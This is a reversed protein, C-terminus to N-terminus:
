VRKQSASHCAQSKSLARPEQNLTRTSTRSGYHNSNLILFLLPPRLHSLLLHVQSVSSLLLILVSRYGLSSCLQLHNLLHAIKVSPSAKSSLMCNAKLVLCLSPPLMWINLCAACLRLRFGSKSRIPPAPGTPDAMVQATCGTDLSLLRPAALLSSTPNSPPAPTPSSADLLLADVHLVSPM